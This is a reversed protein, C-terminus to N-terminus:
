RPTPSVTAGAKQARNRLGVAITYGWLYALALITPTKLEVASLGAALLLTTILSYRRLNNAEEFHLVAWLPPILFLLHHTHLIPATLMYTNIGSAARLAAPLKTLTLVFAALVATILPIALGNEPPLGLLGLLASPVSSPYAANGGLYAVIGQPYHLWIGPGFVIVALLTLASVAALFGKLAERRPPYLVALAVPLFPKMMLLAGAGLGSGFPKPAEYAVVLTLLFLIIASMQGLHNNVYIIYIFPAFSIAYAARPNLRMTRQLISLSGVAAALNAALYVYKAAQLGVLTLPLMLLLSPPPYVYQFLYGYGMRAYAQTWSANDYINVGALAARCAVYHSTLDWCIGDINLLISASLTATLSVYFLLIYGTYRQM